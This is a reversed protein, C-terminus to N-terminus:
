GKEKRKSLVKLEGRFSTTTSGQADRNTKQQKFKDHEAAARAYLVKGIRCIIPKFDKHMRQLLEIYDYFKTTLLEDEIGHMMVKGKIYEHIKGVSPYADPSVPQNTRKKSTPTATIPQPMEPPISPTLLLTTSAITLRPEPSFPQTEPINKIEVDTEM